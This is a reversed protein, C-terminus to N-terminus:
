PRQHVRIYDIDFSTPFPTSADPPGPWSGGIALNAQVFFPQDPVGSTLTYVPAGDLYWTLRGPEWLTGVVHWGRSFDVGPLEFQGGTNDDGTHLTFFASGRVVEVVDIEDGDSNYPLGWVAPWMGPGPPTRFRVETYGYTHTFDTYGPQDFGFVDIATTIAGSTYGDPDDRGVLRLAGDRVEVNEPRYTQLEDNWGTCEARHGLQGHSVCPLWRTTDLATGDFEDAFVLRWPGPPGDPAATATAATDGPPSRDVPLVPLREEPVVLAVATGLLAVAAAAVTAPLWWRHARRSTRASRATARSM